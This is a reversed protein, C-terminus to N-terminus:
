RGDSGKAQCEDHIAYWLRMVDRAGSSSLKQFSRRKNELGYTSMGHGATQLLIVSRATQWGFGLARCIVIAPDARKNEMIRHMRMIPIRCLHSLVELAEEYLGEDALRGLAAEDFNTAFQRGEVVTRVAAAYMPTPISRGESSIEALVRLIKDRSELTAAAFLRRQVARTASRILDRLLSEPIDPRQGVKEALIGDTEAKRVLTSFGANSLRAALNGAVNRVVERNGRRVLVDTIIESLRDRNSIALLHGQGKSKAVDLLDLDALRASYQLAPAAITADDDHALRRLAGPPANGVAALAVSLEFRAKAEIGRILRNFLEDFFQVHSEAFVAAGDVFLRTVSKLVEARREPSGRKTIGEIASLLQTDILV